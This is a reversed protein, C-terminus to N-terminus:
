YSAYNVVFSVEPSQPHNTKLKVNVPNKAGRIAAPSNPAIKMELMYRKRSKGTFNPDPILKIKLPDADCEIDLLELEQDGMGSVFLLLSSTNGESAKFRGIKAVRAAPYWRTGLVSLFQYPGVRSGSVFWVHTSEGDIDTQVTVTERFHGAQMKPEIKLQIGYGSKAKLNKADVKSLPTYDATLFPSSSELSLIQFEDHLPSIVSGSVVTPADESIPLTEPKPPILSSTTVSRSGNIRGLTVTVLLACSAIVGTLIITRRKM